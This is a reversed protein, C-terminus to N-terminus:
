SKHLSLLANKQPRTPPEPKPAHTQLTHAQLVNTLPDNKIPREARSQEARSKNIGWGCPPSSSSDWSISLSLDGDYQPWRKHTNKEEERGDTSLWRNCSRRIEFLRWRVASCQVSPFSFFCMGFLTMKEEEEEEKRWNIRHNQPCQSPPPAVTTFWDSWSCWCCCNSRAMMIFM